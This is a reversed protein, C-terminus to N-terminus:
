AFAQADLAVALSGSKLSWLLDKQIKARVKLFQRDLVTARVKLLKNEFTQLKATVKAEVSEEPKLDEEPVPASLAVGNQFGNLLLKRKTNLHAEESALANLAAAFSKIRSDQSSSSAAEPTYFDGVETPSKFPTGQSSSSLTGLSCFDSEEPFPNDQSSSSAIGPSHFNKAKARSKFLTDQSSSSVTGPSYFKGSKIFSKFPTDQSSSSITELADSDSAETSDEQGAGPEAPFGFSSATWDSAYISEVQSSSASWDIAYVTIDDLHMDTESSDSDNAEEFDEALDGEALNFEHQKVQLESIASHRFGGHLEEGFDVHLKQKTKQWDRDTGEPSQVDLGLSPFWDKSHEIRTSSTSKHRLSHRNNKGTILFRYVPESMFGSLCGVASATTVASLM